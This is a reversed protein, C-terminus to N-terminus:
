VELWNKWAVLGDQNYKVLANYGDAGAHMNMLLAKGIRAISLPDDVDAQWYSPSWEIADSTVSPVGESAGDATVMNFTETYSPQMLINMSRVLHRFQPWRYWEDKVLKMNPVGGLMADISRVVTSGGEIRGVSIHFEVETHLDNSIELAAAAASLHNKLPRVAGFAGIKITGGTWQRRYVPGLGEMYYLNPLWLCPRSYSSTVWSCLRKSNGGAKFNLSGQELDLDERFNKIATPDNQLFGVNSHCVVAFQVAPFKFVLDGQLGPTPLWPAGIVVHSPPPSAKAILESLSQTGLIPWVEAYIGAAQLTKATNVASVGLGVHSVNHAVPFNKYCIAVRREASPKSYAIHNV